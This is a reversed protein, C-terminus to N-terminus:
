VVKRFLYGLIMFLIWSIPSFFGSILLCKNSTKESFFHFKSDSLAFDCCWICFQSPQRLLEKFISNLLNGMLPAPKLFLAWFAPKNLSFIRWSTVQLVNSSRFLKFILVVCLKGRLHLFYYIWVFHKIFLVYDTRSFMVDFLLPFFCRNFPLDWLKQPM